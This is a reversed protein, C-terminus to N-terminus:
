AEPTKFNPTFLSFRIVLVNLVDAVNTAAINDVKSITPGTVASSM